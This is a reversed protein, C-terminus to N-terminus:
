FLFLKKFFDEGLSSNISKKKFLSLFSPSSVSM